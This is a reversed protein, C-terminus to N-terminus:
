VMVGHEAGKKAQLKRGFVILAKALLPNQNCAVALVGDGAEQVQDQVPFPNVSGEHMPCQEFPCGVPDCNKITLTKVKNWDITRIKM